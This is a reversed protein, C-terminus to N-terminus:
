LFGIQDVGMSRRAIIVAAIEKLFEELIVCNDLIRDLPFQMQKEMSSVVNLGTETEMFSHPLLSDIEDKDSAYSPQIWHGRTEVIPESFAPLAYPVHSVSAWPGTIVAEEPLLSVLKSTHDYHIPPLEEQETTMGMLSSPNPRPTSDFTSKTVGSVGTEHIISPTQTGSGSVKPTNNMGLSGINLDPISINKRPTLFSKLSSSLGNARGKRRLPQPSTGVVGQGVFTPTGFVSQEVDLMVNMAEDLHDRFLLGQRRVVLQSDFDPIQSRIHSIQKVISRLAQYLVPLDISSRASSPGANSSLNEFDIESDSDLDSDFNSSADNAQDVKSWPNKEDKFDKDYLLWGGLSRYGCMAFATLVGTMAINEDPMKTLFSSFGQLLQQLLPDSPNLRHPTPKDLQSHPLRTTANKGDLLINELKAQSFIFSSDASIAQQMDTLYGAFGPSLEISTQSVDIRSLLSGYLEVEQLHIDTYNVPSPLCSELDGIYFDQPIPRRSLATATTDRLCLLLGETALRSHDSLMTHLLRLAAASAVWHGSKLNDLILDKLTFRGEAAFYETASPLRGVFGMAGTEKKKKQLSTSLTPLPDNNASIDMLFQLIKDLVPGDDLNAFVANLYVMVAVSSGDHSSCELISPYLVNDLFSSQIADIIAESIAGGLVHTHTVTDLNPDAHLIPSNCRHIIDQLFGFLKLLLDLQAHVQVDTSLAVEPDEEIVSSLYMGRSEVKGEEGSAQLTSISPVHLKTPLLSYVAGLAAAMVDAFDGDLIFERLADRVEQLSDGDDKGATLNEGGEENPTLFAIDFLFILGARAFDGLRGERHVFRLLYSFLLFEFQHPYKAAKTSPVSISTHTSPAPSMVRAPETHSQIQLWSKDQFFIMLLPPYARMKSCLVCMLDVLDGEIEEGNAQREKVVSMGAAGVVRVDSDMKDEPEDGICSRLLRRLPRHVANHILFRESLLVVLNNVARLVHAKIGHPRDAECLRELHALLDNKLFYELCVGTTDEDTRTNEYILADVIHRLQVPVDTSSIGRVLQREDPYQLTERINQWALDFDELHDPQRTQATERPGQLLRGFFNSVEM